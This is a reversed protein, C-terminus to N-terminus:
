ISDTGSIWSDTVSPQRVVLDLVDCWTRQELSPMDIRWEPHAPDNVRVLLAGDTSAPPPQVSASWSHVADLPYSRWTRGKRLHVLRRQTHLAISSGSDVFGGDPGDYCFDPEGLSQVARRFAERATIRLWLALGILCTCAGLALLTTM